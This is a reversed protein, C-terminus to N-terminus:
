ERWYRRQRERERRTIRPPGAGALALTIAGDQATNSLSVGAAAYRALTRPSPHHFRNRWGASVLGLRPAIAALFAASSSGASGHHPVVLALAPGEGVRPAIGAEAGAGIDGPLLLRGGSATVLLVCSRDNSSAAAPEDASPGLMRFEVGDWNWGQGARCPQAAVEGRDPEGALVQPPAFARVVAPAGGAHDNDGHSVILLDLNRVGLAHLSPLVAAEGLDFGSAFRAGSDYLLTHRQTRVIVALGQGVDLVVAEFGGPPPTPRVPLLLPLFLLLGLARAPVGRPLFLWAAGLMALLLAWPAPAPLYGHAAPWTAAWELLRWQQHSFWAALLLPPTALAPVLLLALTGALCLPVIVFSVLPVAILNSLAGVLSAEGFFWIGLPLLAVTMVIQGSSLEHLFGLLSRPGRVICLMLFAVGVFSLWFGPALTALPDAVLIALMALALTHAGSANRRLVRTLAFVGIMLLTRLTPLSGGALVGYATASALTALAQVQPLAVRLGLPPHLLWALWALAAGFLGAVGVHFGSIAILHPIGNIRAVRWDENDLGRTDGIAFAQLLAADHADPVRAAIDGALRERLADVCWARQGLAANVADDRVYGVAVVGRELAQRESDYGGPNVLGRPRKLRLRLRWRSCARLQAPVEDYWSLRLLGALPVRRGDREAQEVRLAFRTADERRLPLGEVQGVVVFDHGEEARPLRADLALDARLACWAFGLLCLGLLRARPLWLLPVAIAGLVLDLWRPPLQPLAHVALVGAVAALAGAAGLLPLARPSAPPKRGM